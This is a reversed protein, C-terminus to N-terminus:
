EVVQEFDAAETVFAHVTRRLKQIRNPGSTDYVRNSLLVAWTQHAPDVWLSTGTFGTHGFARGSM